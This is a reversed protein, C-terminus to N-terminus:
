AKDTKKKMGELVEKIWPTSAHKQLLTDARKQIAPSTSEFISGPAGKAFIDEAIKELEELGQIYAANTSEASLTANLAKINALNAPLMGQTSFYHSWWAARHAQGSQLSAIWGIAAAEFDARAPDPKKSKLHWQSELWVMGETLLWDPGNAHGDPHFRIAAQREVKAFSSSTDSRNYDYAGSIFFYPIGKKLEDPRAGAIQALVGAGELAAANTFAMRAGGSNGSYYVRKPDIPLTEQLHEVCKAAHQHNDTGGNRSEVSCAIIWGCIEAGEKLANLTGGDGGGSSTYFLMPYQRGAKLTKPVYFHYNSGGADVPGITSGLPQDLKAPASASGAEFHKELTARDEAAMKDLPVKVIRGTASEFVVCGNQIATARAELTTGTSSTWVRNETPEAASAPSALLTAFILSSLKM